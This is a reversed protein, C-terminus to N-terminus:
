RERKARLKEAAERVQSQTPKAALLEEIPTLARRDGIDGLAVAAFIRVSEDSDKLRDILRPVARADRLSGLSMAVSIRVGPEADDLAAILANVSREDKLGGLAQAAARRVDANSDALAEIVAPTAERLGIAGLARVILHRGRFETSASKLATVLPAVSRPDKFRALADVVYMADAPNNVVAKIMPDIARRDGAEALAEAANQKVVFWDDQLLPAFVL